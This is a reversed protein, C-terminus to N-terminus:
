ISLTQFSKILGAASCNYCIFIHRAQRSAMANNFSGRYPARDERGPATISLRRVLSNILRAADQQVPEAFQTHLATTGPNEYGLEKLIARLNLGAEVLHTGYCHRLSYGPLRSLRGSLTGQTV